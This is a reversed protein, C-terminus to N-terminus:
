VTRLLRLVATPPLVRGGIGISVEGGDAIVRILETTLVRLRDYRAADFARQRERWPRAPPGVALDEAAALEQSGVVDGGAIWLQRFHVSSKERFAVSADSLITMIRARRVLQGGTRLARELHRRVRPPDWGEIDDSEPEETFRLAASGRVVRGWPTRGRSLNASAFSEWAAEFVDAEPAFAEPVGLAAARATEDRERGGALDVLTAFSRLAWRSPLPGLPAAESPEDAAEQGARAAFWARRGAEKLHVNYPPDLRKIEDTELLAAELISSTETILIDHAQTLMELSRETSKSGAGYHSAIRKKLSAAKGVYLVDGNSRVFRYVGPVDPLGRRKEPAVPFGRRSSRKPAPAELFARLDDWDKLGLADLRDQLAHWAFVTAAVHGGSRRVLEPSHGLYGALARLSRRPLDPFLRRALEHLCIADLPFPEDPELRGHLDRLFTLEFRAFHIVTPAGRPGGGLEAAAARLRRWAVDAAIAENRAREDFGTLERVIRSVREGQPLEIWSAEIPRVEGRGAPAWGLELM